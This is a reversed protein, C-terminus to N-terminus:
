TFFVFTVFNTFHDRQFLIVNYLTHLHDRQFLLQLTVENSVIEDRYLSVRWPMHQMNCSFAVYGEILCLVFVGHKMLHITLLFTNVSSFGSQVLIARHSCFTFASEFGLM